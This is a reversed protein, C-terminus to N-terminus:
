RTSQGQSPPVLAPPTDIHGSLDDTSDLADLLLVIAVIGGGLIVVKQGTTLNASPTSPNERLANRLTRSDIISVYDSAYARRNGFVPDVVAPSASTTHPEGIACGSLAGTWIALAM